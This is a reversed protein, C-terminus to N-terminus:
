SKQSFQDHYPHTDNKFVHLRTLRTDRLKNKPLMGKVAHIILEEPNNQKLTQFTVVRQGGPYGSFYSYEKKLAKNGTIAVAGANIVVVHDGMDLYPVYNVKHKGQLLKVIESISRGLVQDKVDIIHWGRTIATESISKTQKTLGTM